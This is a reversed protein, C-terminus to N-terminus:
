QRKGPRNMIHGHRYFLNNLLDQEFYSSNKYIHAVTHIQNACEGKWFINNRDLSNVARVVNPLVLNIQVVTVCIILIQWWEDCNYFYRIMSYSFQTYNEFRCPTQYNKALQFSYKFTCVLKVYITFLCPPPNRSNVRQLFLFVYKIHRSPPHEMM